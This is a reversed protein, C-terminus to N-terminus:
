LKITFSIIFKYHMKQYEDLFNEINQNIVMSDRIWIGNQNEMYEFTVLYKHKRRRTKIEREVKQPEEDKFLGKLKGLFRNAAM